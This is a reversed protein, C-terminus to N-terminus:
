RHKERGSFLFDRIWITRDIIWNVAERKKCNWWSRRNWSKREEKEKEKEKWAEQLFFCARDDEFKSSTNIYIYICLQQQPIRYKSESGWKWLAHAHLSALTHPLKDGLLLSSRTRPSPPSPRPSAVLHCEPVQYLVCFPLTRVSERGM